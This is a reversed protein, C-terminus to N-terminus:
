TVRDHGFEPGDVPTPFEGGIELYGSGARNDLPKVPNSCRPRRRGAAGRRPLVDTPSGRLSELVRALLPRLRSGARSPPGGPPSQRHTRRAPRSRSGSCPASSPTALRDPRRGGTGPSGDGIIDGQPQMRGESKGVAAISSGSRLRNKLRRRWRSGNPSPDAKV